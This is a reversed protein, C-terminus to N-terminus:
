GVFVGGTLSAGGFVTIDQFISPETSATINAGLYIRVRAAVGEGSGVVLDARNDGDADTAAVRIGGRDLSNGAVFFNAIPAAYAADITGASILQGNLAFVRPAGGPGGGFILDGFGDGNLDGIAVFSGNRLTVSDSGPFAFFDNVLKTQTAGIATTGNFIAIRPGGLFGAAVALDPTGDRNVDGVATRVGGRFNPDGTIGFFNAVVTPTTGVLTFVTIRPGGGQDPSVVIEDRGDNNFDGSSVFGGGTFSESGVFPATPPILVTANDVGSIVTFRIPTGPGTVSIIDNIGDGNVDGTTARVNSDSGLFPTITTPASATGAVSTILQVTGNNAGGAAIPALVPFVSLDGIALTGAGITNILTAAGTALNVSYLQSVGGVNLAAVATNAPGFIDLGAVISTNVGLAGVDLLVAGPTGVVGNIALRDTGSVIGFLTTTNPAGAFSNTYAVAVEPASGAPLATFDLDADIAVLAGTTPNLRFNNTNSAAASGDSPLDTTVRILDAVPNIDVGFKTAGTITAVNQATGVGTAVGTTPNITYVRVTNAGVNAAVGYLQGTSPRFDTGVLVDSAALGTIATTSTLTQPTATDFRFLNNANAGIGLAFAAAPVERAELSELGLRPRAIFKRRNSRTM